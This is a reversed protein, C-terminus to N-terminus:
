IARFRSSLIIKDHSEQEAMLMSEVAGYCFHASLFSARIEANVEAMGGVTGMDAKKPRKENSEAYFPESHKKKLQPSSNQCDALRCLEWLRPPRM